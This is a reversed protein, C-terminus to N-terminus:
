PLVLKKQPLHILKRLGNVEANESESLETMPAELVREM